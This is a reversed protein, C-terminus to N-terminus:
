KKILQKKILIKWLMLPKNKIIVTEENDVMLNIAHIISRISLSEKTKFNSTLWIVYSFAEMKKGLDVEPLIHPIIGGIRKIIQERTLRLDVHLSRNLVAEDLDKENLNTIFIIQGTFTFKNPLKKEGSKKYKEWIEKDTMGSADFYGSTAITSVQRKKKTDLVGKLMNQIGPDKLVSDIDDLLILKDRNLFLTKYLGPATARGTFSVFDPRKKNLIEEVEFTKGVGPTGSLIFANSTGRAVQKTFKKVIEFVDIDIEDYYDVYSKTTNDKSDSSTIKLVENIKSYKIFSIIEPLHRLISIGDLDLRKTPNSIFGDEPFLDFNEFLDISTIQEKKYNIKLAKDTDVICFLKGVTNKDDKLEEHYGLINYGTKKVLYEIVTKIINDLGGIRQAEFLRFEKLIM